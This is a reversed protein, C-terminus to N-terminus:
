FVWRGGLVLATYRYDSEGTNFSQLGASSYGGSLTVERGPGFRYLLRASTRVALQFAEASVKQAGPAAELLIGVDGLSVAWRGTVETLGFYDPDFYFEDLNERFGFTRHSLGVAAGGPLRREFRATLHLRRNHEEGHFAGIGTSGSIQWGPAPAWRGSLDMLRVTVGREVLQATADL